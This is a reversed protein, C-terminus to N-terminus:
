LFDFAPYPENLILLDTALWFRGFLRVKGQGTKEKRAEDCFPMSFTLPEVGRIEVM